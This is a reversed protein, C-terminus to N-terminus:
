VAVVPPSSKPALHLLPIPCVAVSMAVAAPRAAFAPAVVAGPKMDDTTGQVGLDAFPCGEHEEARDGPHQEVHALGDTASALEAADIAARAGVEEFTRHEACYRHEDADEAHWVSATLGALWLTAM